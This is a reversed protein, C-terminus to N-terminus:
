VKTRSLVKRCKDGCTKAHVRSSHFKQGCVQCTSVMAGHRQCWTGGAKTKTWTGKLTIFTCTDDCYTSCWNPQTRM